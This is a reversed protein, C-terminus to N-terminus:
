LWWQALHHQLSLTQNEPLLNILLLSALFLCPFSLVAMRWPKVEKPVCMANSDQGQLIGTCSQILFCQSAWLPAGKAGHGEQSGWLCKGLMTLTGDQGVSHGDRGRGGGEAVGVKGGLKRDWQTGPGRCQERIRSSASPLQQM